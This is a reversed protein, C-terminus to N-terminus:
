YKKNLIKKLANIWNITPLTLKEPLNDLSFYELADCKNEEYNELKWWIVKCLYQPTIWHQNEEPMIDDTLSLLEDVEIDLWIEEKIERKVAEKFTEWFEVWGWPLSWWWSKNKVNKWRRMLLIENKKNLIVAGCWVGIYDFWKKM